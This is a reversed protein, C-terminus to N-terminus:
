YYAELMEAYHDLKAALHQGRDQLAQDRPDLPEELRTSPGGGGRKEVLRAEEAERSAPPRRRRSGSGRGSSWARTSRPRSPRARLPPTSTRFYRIQVCKKGPLDPVQARWRSPSVATRGGGRGQVPHGPSGQAPDQRLRGRPDSPRRPRAPRRPRWSGAPIGPGPGWPVHQPHVHVEGPILASVCDYCRVGRAQPYGTPESVPAVTKPPSAIQPEPTM